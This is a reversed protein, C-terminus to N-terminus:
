RNGNGIPVYWTVGTTSPTPRDVVEGTLTVTVFEICVNFRRTSVPIRQAGPAAATADPLM